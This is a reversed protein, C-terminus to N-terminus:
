LRTKKKTQGNWIPCITHFHHASSVKVESTLSPHHLTHKETRGRGWRKKYEQNTTQHSTPYFLGTQLSSIEHLYMNSLSGCEEVHVEVLWLESVLCRVAKTQTSRHYHIPLRYPSTTLPLPGFFGTSWPTSKTGLLTKNKTFSCTCNDVKIYM